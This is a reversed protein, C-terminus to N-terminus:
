RRYQATALDIIEGTHCHTIRYPMELINCLLLVKSVLCLCQMDNGFLCISTHTIRKGNKVLNGAKTSSVDGILLDDLM